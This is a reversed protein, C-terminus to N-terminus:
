VMTNPTGGRGRNMLSRGGLRVVVQHRIVANIERGEHPISGWERRKEKKEPKTINIATGTVLGMWGDTRYEVRTLSKRQHRWSRDTERLCILSHTALNQHGKTGKDLSFPGFGPWVFTKRSRVDSMFCPSSRTAHERPSLVRESVRIFSM